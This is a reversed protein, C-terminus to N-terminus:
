AVKRVEMERRSLASPWWNWRGLLLVLSPVLITRILFTDMIVGVAIGFGIQQIYSAYSSNGAGLALVAFTGALIVGATTITGGSMGVARSVAQRLPLKRAEERMRTMLLINYDSGLATLFVFMFFPLVFFLGADAGLHVFVIAAFGLAALYSLVVSVVLYLPAVLSRLVLALLIAIVVAVIPLIRMLDNTAITSVDYASAMLGFVGSASAGVSRAVNSVADRVKPFQALDQSNGTNNYRLVTAWQVTRGDASIYQITARYANYDRPSVGSHPPAVPPLAGAPGLQAHLRALRGTSLPTGNPTTPGLVSAFLPNARLDRQVQNLTDLHYWIPQPFRLLVASPSTSSGPFHTALVAQGAASDSGSPSSGVDGFGTFGSNLQGLALGVFVVLGLALAVAPRALVHRGVRGWLGVENGTRERVRSPWFVARGLIALLAPLFTLGGLLMLAIGIALGPGLGRYLGFQAALLSLLAAIVTFASFTITEGVHTLARVVAAHPELGNRLEERVRFVLFLGYDTGAGLVLVILLFQTFTSAQVGLRTFAAIVPGALLLVLAAPLLTVLPALLARFAFLLLILIFIYSFTTISSRSSTNQQQADVQIPLEGTEHFVLGAPAGATTFLHRVDDVFTTAAGSGNTPVDAQVLAQRAQGDPSVGEDRVLRVVPMARLAGELRTIAAQDAATLPENARAAVITVTAYQTNQFVGALNGAQVSPTNNPLLGSYTANAVSALSPFARVSVITVVIWVIVVPYKFRVVSQGLAEFFREM